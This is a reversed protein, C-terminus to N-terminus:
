VHTQSLRMNPQSLLGNIKNCKICLTQINDKDWQAGGLAIPKIHDAILKSDDISEGWPYKYKPQKGCKVCTHNDRKFCQERLDM